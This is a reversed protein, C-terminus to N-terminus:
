RFRSKVEGWTTNEVPTSGCPDPDCAVGDGAYRGGAGECDAQTGVLCDGSPFCCAGTPPGATELTFDLQTTSYYWSIPAVACEIVDGSQVTRSTAYDTTQWLSSITASFLETGNAYVRVIDSGYDCIVFHAALQVTMDQPATWRIVTQKTSDPHFYTTHPQYDYTSLCHVPYDHFNDWVGPNRHCDWWWWIDCGGLPTNCTFLTLPEEPTARSGYSWAGNPNQTGSFDDTLNWVEGHSVIPFLVLILCAAFAIRTNM